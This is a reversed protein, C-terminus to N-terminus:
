HKMLKLDVKINHHQGGVIMYGICTHVSYKIYIKGIKDTKSSVVVYEGHEVEASVQQLRSGESIYVNMPRKYELEYHLIYGRSGVSWSAQYMGNDLEKGPEIDAGKYDGNVRGVVRSKSHKEVQSNSEICSTIGM